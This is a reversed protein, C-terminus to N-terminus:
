LSVQDPTLIPRQRAESLHLDPFGAATGGAKERVTAPGGAVALGLKM